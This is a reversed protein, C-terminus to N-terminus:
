ILFPLLLIPTLLALDAAIRLHLRSFSGRHRDILALILAATLTAVYIPITKRLNSSVSGFTLAAILIGSLLALASAVMRFHKAARCTTDRAHPSHLQWTPALNEWREIALCNLWCLAAFIAVAPFLAARGSDLRSWAPVATAAAFVVGVTIEKPLWNIGCFRPKHVLVLYLLTASFLVADEYRANASMRAFILWVLAGGAAVAVTLFADRHRVHFLHRHRLPTGSDGRTGDLIRDVVYVLWTGLALLLPAHWPLEVRMARAFFWSWLAAVTPADLSLLHWREFLRPWLSSRLATSERPKLASDSYTHGTEMQSTPNKKIFFGTQCEQRQTSINQNQELSDVATSVEKNYNPQQHLGNPNTGGVRRLSGRLIPCGRNTRVSVSLLSVPSM